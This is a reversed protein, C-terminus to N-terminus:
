VVLSHDVSLERVFAAGEVGGFDVHEPVWDLWDIVVVHKRGVDTFRVSLFQQHKALLIANIFLRSAPLPDSPQFRNALQM